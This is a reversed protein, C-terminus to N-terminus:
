GRGFLKRYEPRNRDLNEKLAPLTEEDYGSDDAAWEELLSIVGDSAGPVPNEEPGLDRNGRRARESPPGSRGEHFLHSVIAHLDLYVKHRDSFADRGEPGCGEGFQEARDALYTLLLLTTGDPLRKFELEGRDLVADPETQDGRPPTAHALRNRYHALCRRFNEPEYEVSRGAPGKLLWHSASLDVRRSEEASRVFACFNEADSWFDFVEEAPAGFELQEVVTETM